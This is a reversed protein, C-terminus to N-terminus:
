NNLTQDSLPVWPSNFVAAPCYSAVEDLGADVNDAESYHSRQFINLLLTM